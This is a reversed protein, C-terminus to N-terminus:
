KATWLLNKETVWYREITTKIEPVLSSAKTFTTPLFVSRNVAEELRQEPRNVRIAVSWGSLLVGPLLRNCPGGWQPRLAPGSIRAAKAGPDGTVRVEQGRLQLLWQSTWSLCGGESVHPLGWYGARGRRDGCRSPWPDPVRWQTNVRDGTRGRLPSGGPRLALPEPGRVRPSPRPGEVPPAPRVASWPAPCASRRERPLCWPLSVMWVWWRTIAEGRILGASGSNWSWFPSTARPVFWILHQTQRWSSPLDSSRFIVLWCKLFEREGSTGAPRPRETGRVRRVEAVVWLLHEQEGCAGFCM